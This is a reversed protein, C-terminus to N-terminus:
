GGGDTDGGADEKTLIRRRVPYGVDIPSDGLRGLPEIALM